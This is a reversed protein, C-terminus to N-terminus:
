SKKACAAQVSAREVRRRVLQRCVRVSLEECRRRAHFDVFVVVVVSTYRSRSSTHTQGYYYGNCAERAEFTTDQAYCGLIGIMM